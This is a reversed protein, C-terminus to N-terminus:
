AVPMGSPPDLVPRVETGGVSSNPARAAWELAEDLTGVEIVFYGGLHERTDAFPGDQVQRKGGVVRVTTATRPPKLGNGGRVIGSAGLAGVYANWAGWYAPAQAPDDARASEAASEYFMLMYQMTSLETISPTSRSVAVM